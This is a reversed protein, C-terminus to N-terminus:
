SFPAFNSFLYLPFFGSLWYGDEGNETAHTGTAKTEVKQQGREWYLGAHSFTLYSPLYAAVVAIYYFWM